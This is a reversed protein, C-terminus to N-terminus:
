SPGCRGVDSGAWFLDSPLYSLFYLWLNALSMVRERACAQSRGPRRPASPGQHRHAAKIRPIMRPPMTPRFRHRKGASARQPRSCVRCTAGLSIPCRSPPARTPLWARSPSPLARCRFRARIRAPEAGQAGSRCSADWNKPAGSAVQLRDDLGPREFLQRSLERVQKRADESPVSGSLTLSNASLGAVFVFPDVM